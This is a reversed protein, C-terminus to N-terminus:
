ANTAVESITRKAALFSFALGFLGYFGAYALFIIFKLPTMEGTGRMAIVGGILLALFCVSFAIVSIAATAAKQDAQAALSGLVLCVLASSFQLLLPGPQLHDAASVTVLQLACFIISLLFFLYGFVVRIKM